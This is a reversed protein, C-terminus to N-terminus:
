QDVYIGRAEESLRNLGINGSLFICPPGMALLPMSANAYKTRKVRVNNVCYIIRIISFILPLCVYPKLVGLSRLM